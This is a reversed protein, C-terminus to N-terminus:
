RYLTKKSKITLISNNKAFKLRKRRMYMVNRRAEQLNSTYNQQHFIGEFCKPVTKHVVNVQITTNVASMRYFIQVSFVWRKAQKIKSPAHYEYKKSCMKEYLLAMFVLPKGSKNIALSFKALIDNPNKKRKRYLNLFFIFQFQIFISSAKCM